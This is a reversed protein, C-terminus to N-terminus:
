HGGHGNHADGHEKDKEHGHGPSGHHGKQEEALDEDMEDLAAQIKEHLSLDGVVRYHLSLGQAAFEAEVDDLTHFPKRKQGWTKQMNMFVEITFAKVLEFVVAVGMFWFIPFVIWTLPFPSTKEIAEPFVPVYECLLEVVWVGFSMLFDNFNLVFFNKEEYESEELKPNDKYLLGGWLQVGLSSFIYTVVGLLTLIDRSAAVLSTITDVMLLVSPLRKLQKIVRLLRLLRLINMYRKVSAGGLEIVVMDLLSSLLLLWTTFFDFQNSRLSMYEEFDWVCLKLGVEMLYVCSFTLELHEMLATEEQGSMDRWTEAVVLVLNFMLVLNMFDDFRGEECQRRFWTFLRSDWIVQVHDKVPSYKKTVWFQYEIVGCIDCFERKDISNGGDKDVAKFIIEATDLPLARLRPSRSFEKIFELFTEKSIDTEGTAECITEFARFIGTTKEEVQQEEVEEAHKTYAAVLTDLVLNLLLVQVIVLFIMWLIGSARFVSYSPLFCAVFDDTVGAIFMTNLTSSFSELGVNVPKEHWDGTIDDFITVAIWAFLLITGFLFVAISLFETLVEKICTLLSLVQPLIGLFGARMLFAFRFRQRFIAFVVVDLFAFVVMYLGFHIVSINCYTVAFPDFYNIQLKRDLLLKRAVIVLIGVEIVLGIGPPLYTVNSLLIREPDVKEMLGSTENKEWIICSEEPARMEFFSESTNCWTPMEFVSLLIMVLLARKYDRDAEAAEFNLRRADLNSPYGSVLRDGIADELQWAAQAIGETRKDHVLLHVRSM